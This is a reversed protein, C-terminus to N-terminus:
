PVQIQIQIINNSKQLETLRSHNEPLEPNQNVHKIRGARM